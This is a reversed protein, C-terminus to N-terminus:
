KGSYTGSFAGDANNGEVTNNGRSLISGGAGAGVGTVNRVIASQAVRTVSPSGGGSVFIGTAGNGRVTSRSVTAFVPLSGGSTIGAQANGSVLLRDLTATLPLGNAAALSIGDQSGGAVISNRVTLRGNATAKIGTGNNEFRVNDILVGADAGANAIRLGTAGSQIRSDKISLTSAGAPQFNVNAQGVQSYGRVIMNELFLAGGSAFLIGNTGGESTVVLGRLVM